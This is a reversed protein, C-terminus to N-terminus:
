DEDNSSEQDELHYMNKVTTRDSENCDNHDDNTDDRNPCSHDNVKWDSAVNTDVKPKKRKFRTGEEAPEISPNLESVDTGWSLGDVPQATATVLELNDGSYQLGDVLLPTVKLKHKKKLIQGAPFTVIVGSNDRLQWGGININDKTPNYLVIEPRNNATAVNDASCRFTLQRFLVQQQAQPLNATSITNGSLTATTLLAAHTPIYVLSAIVMVLGLSKFALLVKNKKRRHISRLQVAKSAFYPQTKRYYESLRRIEGLIVALAPIYILLILGVPHRIFDVLYGVYPVSFSSVGVISQPAISEDNNPNADGKTIFRQQNQDSPTEVIRHTITQNKNAPNVYTVVDGVALQSESVRTVAVLDGKQLSPAMSGSQVSFLKGGQSHLM